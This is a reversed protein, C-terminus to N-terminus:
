VIIFFFLYKEIKDRKSFEALEALAATPLLAEESPMGSPKGQRALAFVSNETIEGSVCIVHFHM